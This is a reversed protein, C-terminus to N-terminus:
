AVLRGFISSRAAEDDLHFPQPDYRHAFHLVEERPLVFCGLDFSQGPALDDASRIPTM